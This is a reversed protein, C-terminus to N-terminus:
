KLSLRSVSVSKLMKMGRHRHRQLLATLAPHNTHRRSTLFIGKSHLRKLPIPMVLQSTAAAASTTSTQLVHNPISVVLSQDGSDSYVSNGQFFGRAVCIRCNCQDVQEDVRQSRITSHESTLSSVQSTRSQQKKQHDRPSGRRKLSSPSPVSRLLSQTYMSHSHNRSSSEPSSLSPPYNSPSSPPYNSPSPHETQSYISPTRMPVAACDSCQEPQGKLCAVHGLWQGCSLCKRM